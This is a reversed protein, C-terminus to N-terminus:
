SSSSRRPEHQPTCPQYGSRQTDLIPPLLTGFWQLPVCYGCPRSWIEDSAVGSRTCLESLRRSRGCTGSSPAISADSLRAGPRSLCRALCHLSPHRTREYFPAAGRTHACWADATQPAQQLKAAAQSQNRACWEDATQPAQQPKKHHSHEEGVWRLHITCPLQRLLRLHPNRSRIDCRLVFLARVCVHTCRRERGCACVYDFHM